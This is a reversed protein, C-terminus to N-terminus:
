ARKADKQVEDDSSDPAPAPNASPTPVTQTLRMSEQRYKVLEHEINRAKSDSSVKDTSLQATKKKEADYKERLTKLETVKALAEARSEEVQTKATRLQRELARIEKTSNVGVPKVVDLQGQLEKNTAQIRAITTRLSEVMKREDQIESDKFEIQRKLSQEFKDQANRQDRQLAESEGKVKDLESRLSRLQEEVAESTKGFVENEQRLKDNEEEHQANLSLKHQVLQYHREFSV